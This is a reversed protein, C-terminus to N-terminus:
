LQVDSDAWLETILHILTFVVASVVVHPRLGRYDDLEIRNAFEARTEPHFIAIQLWVSGEHSRTPSQRMLRTAAPM